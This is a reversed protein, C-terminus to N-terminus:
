SNGGNEREGRMTEGDFRREVREMNQSRHSADTQREGPGRDGGGGPPRLKGQDNKDRVHQAVAWELWHRHQHENGRAGVANGERSLLPVDSGGLLTLKM